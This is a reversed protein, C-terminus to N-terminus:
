KVVGEGRAAKYGGRWGHSVSRRRRTGDAGSSHHCAVAGVM